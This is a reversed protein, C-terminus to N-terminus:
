YPNPVSLDHSIKILTRQSNPQLSPIWFPSKWHDLEPGQFVPGPLCVTCADLRYSLLTPTSSGLTQPKQSPLPQGAMPMTPLAM